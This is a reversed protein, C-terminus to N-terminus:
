SKPEHQAPTVWLVPECRPRFEVEQVRARCRAGDYVIIDGVRPVAAYLERGSEHFTPRGAWLSIKCWLM